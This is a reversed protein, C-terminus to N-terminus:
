ATPGKPHIAASVQSMLSSVDADASLIVSFQTKAEMVEFAAERLNRTMEEPDGGILALGSRMAQLAIIDSRSRAWQPWVVFVVRPGTETKVDYGITAQGRREILNLSSKLKERLSEILPRVSPGALEVLEDMSPLPAMMKSATEPLREQGVVAQTIVLREGSESGFFNFQVARVDINHRRLYRAVDVIEPSVQQAVLLVVQDYNWAVEGGNGGADSRTGFTAEHAEALSGWSLGNKAFYETSVSNLEEYGLGEIYSTYELAQAIMDRPTRDKKLEVVVARGRRDVALLDMPRGLNTPRQRGIYIVDEGEILVHPNKELWDELDQEVNQAGFDAQRYEVFKDDGTLKYTGM